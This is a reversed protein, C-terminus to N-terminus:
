TWNRRKLVHCYPVGGKKRYYDRHYNEAEYFLSAPLLETKVAEGRQKLFAILKAATERQDKTFYFIASRYQSGVDPGQRDVQTPDHIEFFFKMLDEYSVEKSDYTVLVAERHGTDGSSVSEYDPNVEHGGVYGSLVEQVGKMQQFYYEVGWFCGGAFLAKSLGEKTEASHFRLSISNVCHRLNKQTFWEGKFAHGLHAGCRACLIEERQGDADLARRVSGEIEDDFSPWGCGSDFKDSSLFLPLDCKKCLYVGERKNHEYEGTGPRETGKNEIVRAEEPTLRHYM